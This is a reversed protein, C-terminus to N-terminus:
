ALKLVSLSTRSTALASTSTNDISIGISFVDGSNVPIIGNLAVPVTFTFPGILTTFFTFNQSITIGNKRIFVNFDARGMPDGLEILDTYNFSYIGSNNIQFSNATDLVFDPTTLYLNLPFISTGITFTSPNYIKINAFRNTLSVASVLQSTNNTQVNESPALSAVRCSKVYLDMTGDNLFSGVDNGLFRNNYNSM